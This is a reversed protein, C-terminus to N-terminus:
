IEEIECLRLLLPNGFFPEEDMNVIFYMGDFGTLTGEGRDRWGYEETIRVRIGM